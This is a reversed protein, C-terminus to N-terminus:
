WWERGNGIRFVVEREGSYDRGHKLHVIVASITEGDLKAVMIQAMAEEFSAHRGGLATSQTGALSRAPAGDVTGYVEWAPAGLPPQTM